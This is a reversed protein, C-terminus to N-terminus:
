TSIVLDARERTGDEAFWAREAAFWERWRPELAGGDRELVREFRVAEPAEVWVGFALLEAVSARATGVGEIVLVPAVPVTVREAYEGRVWDYRRFGGPLGQRLPVLVQSELAAFWGGPGEEWPVPFDDSHIVQCSLAAGLREAFTTKGSGAPGDVAVLRVPGCSPPLNRIRAALQYM